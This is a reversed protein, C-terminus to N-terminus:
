TMSPQSQTTSSGGDAQALAVIVAALALPQSLFPSHSTELTHIITRNGMAADVLGVMRDQAALPVACDQTCRIYHRPVTGFRDSTMVSPAMAGGNPEDCHLRAATYMFDTEPVDAYFSARLLSLYAKDNSGAHIRTAGITAPDGVFLRPAVAESMSEHMLMALLSQGPPMLFGSLYVVAHLLGPVEQAVASVTVGGASHGVLVVKGNGLAAAKEVLAVVAKTREAQTIGAVPSPEIAFASSDFPHRGLSAPEIARAGAGPLDLTLATFGNSEIIPTVHRWTSHDHWGGHVLVFVPKNSIM